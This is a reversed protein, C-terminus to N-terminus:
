PVGEIVKTATRAPKASSLPVTVTITTGREPSSDISSTGDIGRVRERMATLGIGNTAGAVFGKGNDHIVLRLKRGAQSGGAADAEERIDIQVRSAGGHQMANTLAEQVCRFITLDVAEGYGRALSSTAVAFSMDPHRREFGAVLSVILEDLPISGLEVPRLRRLLDRNITKLRSVVTLIEEVRMKIPETQAVAAQEALRGISSVNATIGFLCPGAEDHLENAVQRREDEQVAILNRYLRSNEARAKELAGALLNFRGAIAALERVPPEALRTGYHGDELEHMGRALNILPNLLRGLVVYLLALMMATIGLWIVARRSVEEWVEGLEDRPEGVIVITGMTNERLVVRVERTGVTPGVLDAFWQPAREPHLLFKSGAKADPTIQVLEGNGDSVLIRAHRVYKIQEPMVDLLEGIQGESALRKVMDTVLQQALEMSSTVEVEVRGRADVVALLISLLVAGISIVSISIMLQLRVPLGYWWRGLGTHAGVNGLKGLIGKLDPVDRNREQQAPSGAAADPARRLSNRAVETQVELSSKM